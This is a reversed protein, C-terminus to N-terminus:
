KQNAETAQLPGGDNESVWNGPRLHGGPRKSHIFIQNEKVLCVIKLHKGHVLHLKFAKYISM